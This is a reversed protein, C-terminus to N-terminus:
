LRRHAIILMLHAHSSQWAMLNSGGRVLVPFVYDLCRVARDAYDRKDGTSIVQFGGQEDPSYFDLYDLPPYDVVIYNHVPMRSPNRLVIRVWQASSTFGFSPLVETSPIFKDQYKQQVIDDITLNGGPDELLDVYLGLKLEDQGGSVTVPKASVMGSCLLFLLAAAPILRFCASRPRVCALFYTQVFRVIIM